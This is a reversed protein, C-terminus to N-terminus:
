RAVPATSPVSDSKSALEAAAAGTGAVLWWLQGVKTYFTVDDIIGHAALALGAIGITFPVVSRRGTRLLVLPPVLAAALTAALLVVGGDALAELYLSNAQTRVRPPAGYRPLAFEFGGAGVGLLPHARAMALAAHWLIARSGTGGQDLSSTTSTVHLLAGESREAFALGGLAVAAALATVAVVRRGGVKRVWIAGALSLLAQAIGGRSLTLALAAAGLTLAAILLPWSEATAVVIPLSIGLWAALQNPGELHGALRLVPRGGIWIGSQPSVFDRTADLAVLVIACACAIGLLRPADRDSRSAWWAVLFAFAYELAKFTERVAATRMAAHPVTLATALVLLALVIAIARPAGARPVVLARRVVLAAFAGLLAAKFTTLTTHGVYRSLAFPDSLVLAAPALAARRYTAVGVVLVVM